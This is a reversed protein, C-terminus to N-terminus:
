RALPIEEAVEGLIALDLKNELQYFRAVKKAPLVQKFKPLYEAKLRVRALEIDLYDALLRDAVEDTLQNYNDAYRFILGVIRDGVKIADLRYDRYLPWFAQMEEPTLDMAQSVIMQRALLIAARTLQIDQVAQARVEEASPQAAQAALAPAGAVGLTLVCLVLVGKWRNTRM